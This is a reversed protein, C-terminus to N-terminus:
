FHFNILEKIEKFTVQDSPGPTLSLMSFLTQQLSNLSRTPKKAHEERVEKLGWNARGTDFISHGDHDVIEQHPRNKSNTGEVMRFGIASLM